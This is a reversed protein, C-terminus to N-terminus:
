TPWWGDRWALAAVERLTVGPEVRMVGREPDWALIRRMPSLDLVIGGTNLAADTYSHGAGHPIIARGQTRAQDLAHLIDQTDHAQIVFCSSRESKSWNTLETPTGPFDM